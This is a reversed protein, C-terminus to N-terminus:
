ASTLFIRNRNILLKKNSLYETLKLSNEKLKPANKKPHFLENSYYRLDNYHVHGNTLVHVNHVMPNFFSLGTFFILLNNGKTFILPIKAKPNANQLARIKSPKKSSSKPSTRRTIIISIKLPDTLSNILIPISPVIPNSLM